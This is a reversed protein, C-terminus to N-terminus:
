GKPTVVRSSHAPSRVMTKGAVTCPDGVKAGCWPCPVALGRQEPTWGGRQDPLAQRAQRYEEPPEAVAQAVPPLAPTEKEPRQVQHPLRPRTGPEHPQNVQALWARNLHAPTLVLGPDSAFLEVVTGQAWEPTMRIDLAGAWATAKAAQGEQDAPLLRPDYQAALTLLRLTDGVTM